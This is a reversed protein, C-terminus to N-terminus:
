RFCRRTQLRTTLRDRSFGFLPVASFWRSPAPPAVDEGLRHRLPLAETDVARTRLNAGQPLVKQKVLIRDDWQM